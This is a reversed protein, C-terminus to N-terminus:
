KAGSWFGADTLIAVPKKCMQTHRLIGPLEGIQDAHHFHYTPISLQNLIAKTHLAM